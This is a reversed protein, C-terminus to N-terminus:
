NGKLYYFAVSEYKGVLNDTPGVEIEGKISKTFPIVESQLHWRYSAARCTGEAADFLTYGHTAM